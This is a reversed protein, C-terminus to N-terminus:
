VRGGVAWRHLRSLVGSDNLRLWAARHAQQLGSAADEALVLIQANVSVVYALGLEPDRAAIEATAAALDMDAVWARHLLNIENWSPM